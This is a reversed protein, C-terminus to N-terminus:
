LHTIPFLHTMYGYAEMIKANPKQGVVDLSDMISAPEQKEM